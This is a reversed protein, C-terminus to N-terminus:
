HEGTRADWAGETAKELEGELIARDAAALDPRQLKEALAAALLQQRRLAYEEPDDTSMGTSLRGRAGGHKSRSQGPNTGRSSGCTASWNRGRSVNASPPMTGRLRTVNSSRPRRGAPPRSGSSRSRSARFAM